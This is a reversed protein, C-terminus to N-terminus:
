RRRPGCSRRRASTSRASAPSGPGGGGGRNFSNCHCADMSGSKDIVVVLAIDPQKQRDRVGMDVPLTEEIPTKQTAAPATARRARRGDRPGPRPRPRVAQLALLQRTRSACGRARRRPRHLRVDALAPSTPRAAGGPDAHRGHQRETKLAGVLEAAVAEDGALVLIRPEGKVITNSDARNNQSFTDRGAEVVVRFTHFGAETPKVRFTVRNTGATSTSPAERAVQVGDAFLRVTAPQAVTSRSRRRDGRDGRRPAGDVADHAARRAVEDAAGLGIARTEVQIGRAAALAAESQGPAPRTTATPSCSSGSRPTTRSCRRPSACRAASTPRRDHGAHVRDPRDRPGGGAAARRARGQRVGVIGAVDGEPM